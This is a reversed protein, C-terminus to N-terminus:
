AARGQSAAREARAAAIEAEIEAESMESTGNREAAAWIRELAIFARVRVATEAVAEVDGADVELVLASRGEGSVLAVAGGENLADWVASPADRLDQDTLSKIM